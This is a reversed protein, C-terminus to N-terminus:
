GSTKGKTVLSAEKILGPNKTMIKGPLLTSAKQNPLILRYGRPLRANARAADHLDINYDLVEESKLGLRSLLQRYRVPKEVSVVQFERFEEYAIPETAFIENHYKEAHLVALFSTYFNASAFKFSGAHYKEILTPLDKARARTLAKQIGGAGHNYASVALPWDNLIKYNFKMLKIAALSAKLPSNREDVHENVVLYSRGTEPMIQWIGSAGVKSEARVNFSSEVFPLRTLELPLGHEVFSNEMAPLYRTSSALGSRFFDKQGLQVRVNQAAIRFVTKRKGPVEALAEFLNQELKNLKNYSRKRALKQLAVRIKQLETRVLKKSNFYKQYRNKPSEPVSSTDVVTYVIWPYLTHHVVNEESGYKTYVDFWFATRKELAQPIKFDPSIRNQPDKLASERVFEPAPLQPGPNSSYAIAPHFFNLSTVFVLVLTFITRYWHFRFPTNM